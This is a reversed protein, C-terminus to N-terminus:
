GPPISKRRTKKHFHFWIGSVIIAESCKISETPETYFEAEKRDFSRSLKPFGWSRKLHMWTAPVLPFPEMAERAEEIRCADPYLTPGQVSRRVEDM